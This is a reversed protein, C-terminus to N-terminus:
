QSQTGAAAPQAASGDLSRPQTLARRCLEAHTGAANDACRQYAALAAEENSLERQATAQAWLAESHSPSLAVAQEATARATDYDKMQLLLVAKGALADPQYARLNLALNFLHLARGQNGRAAAERALNVAVDPSEPEPEAASVAAETAVQQVQADRPLAAAEASPVDAPAEASVTQTPTPVDPPTPLVLMTEEGLEAPAPMVYERYAIYGAVALVGSVLMVWVAWMARRSEPSIHGREFVVDSLDVPEPSPWSFFHAFLHAEREDHGPEGPAATLYPHLEEESIAAVPHSSRASQEASAASDRSAAKQV